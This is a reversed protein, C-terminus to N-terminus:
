KQNKTRNYYNWIVLPGIDTLRMKKRVHYIGNFERKLTDFGSWEWDIIGAIDMTNPNVIINSCMDGHVLGVNTGRQKAAADHLDSLEPYKANHIAYIVDALQTALKERNARIKKLPVSMLNVGPIFKTKYFLYGGSSVIDIHPVSVPSVPAIADTIRKEYEFRTASDDNLHKKRVKFVTKNDFIFALSGGGKAMKMHAHRLSPYKAYLANLKNKYDFLKEVQFWRRLRPFVILYSMANLTEFFYKWM